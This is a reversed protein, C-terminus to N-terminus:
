LPYDPHDAYPLALDALVGDALYGAENCETCESADWAALAREVIRRKADCEARVHDPDIVLVDGYEDLDITGLGDTMGHGRRAVTEDETIRALLFGALDRM